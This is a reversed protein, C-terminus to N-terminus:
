SDHGSRRFGADQDLMQEPMLRAAHHGAQRTKEAGLVDRERLLRDLLRHQPRQLGPRIVADRFVRGAPEKADRVIDGDVDNAAVLDEAALGVPDDGFQRPRAGDDRAFRVDLLLKSVVFEPHNEHATMRRQGAIGAHREAEFRDAAETDAFDGAGKEGVLARNGLPQHPRLPLNAILAQREVHRRARLQRRAEVRHEFHDIEHEVLAIGCLGAGIQDALIEAKLRQSESPQDRSGRDRRRAHVRQHRQHRKLRRPQRRTHIFRAVQHQELVLIAAAPVFPEDRDPELM